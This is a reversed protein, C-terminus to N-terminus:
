GTRHWLSGVPALRAGYSDSLRRSAAITSALASRGEGDEIRWDLRGLTRIRTHRRGAPDYGSVTVDGRKIQSRARRLARENV